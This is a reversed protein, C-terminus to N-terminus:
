FDRSAPSPLATLRGRSDGSPVGGQPCRSKLRQLRRVKVVTLYYMQLTQFWQTQSSKNCFSQFCICIGDVKVQGLDSLLKMKLCPARM